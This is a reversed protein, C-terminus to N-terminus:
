KRQYTMKCYEEDGDDQKDYYELVLKNSTLELVKLTIPYEEDGDYILHFIWHLSGGLVL